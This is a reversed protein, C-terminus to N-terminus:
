SPCLTTNFPPTTVGGAKTGIDAKHGTIQHHRLRREAGQIYRENYGVWLYLFFAKPTTLIQQASCVIISKHIGLFSNTLGWDWIDVLYKFLLIKINQRSNHYETSSYASICSYCESFPSCMTTSVIFQLTEVFIFKHAQFQPSLCTQLMYFSFPFYFFFFRATLM